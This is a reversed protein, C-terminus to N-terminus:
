LYAQKRDLKISTDTSVDPIAVNESLMAGTGQLGREIFMTCM